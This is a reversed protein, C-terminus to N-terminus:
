GRDFNKDAGSQEGKVKKLIERVISKLKDLQFPKTLYERVGLEKAKNISEKDTVSSVVITPINRNTEKLAQLFELGSMEPLNLETLILDPNRYEVSELAELGNSACVVDLEAAGFIRQYFKQVRPESDVCLILKRKSSVKYSGELVQRVIKRITEKEFPKTLFASVGLREAQIRAKETPYATVVIVPLDKMQVVSEMDRNLARVKEVVELGSIDPLEVDVILLDIDKKMIIDLGEKGREAFILEYESSSLTYKLFLQFLKVDDIILITKKGNQGM